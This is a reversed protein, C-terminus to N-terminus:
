LNLEGLLVLKEAISRMIPSPIKGLYKIFRKNDISRSQDIMVDCDKENGSLNKPLNVRLLNNEVIRSTCPLVWTSAHCDNLLDTQIVVVPRAKGAETGRGPNLNALYLHGRSIKM